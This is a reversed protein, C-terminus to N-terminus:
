PQIGYIAQLRQFETRAAAAKEPEGGSQYLRFLQYHVTADASALGAAAELTRVADRPRELEKYIRAALKAAAVDRQDLRMAKEAHPLAGAADGAALRLRALGLQSHALQPTAAFAAAAEEPRGLRELCEGLYSRTRAHGPNRELALHFWRVAEQANGVDADYHRGLYYYPGFDTADRRIAQTMQDRFLLHQRALYYAVGLAKPEDIPRLIRIAATADNRLIALIGRWTDRASVRAIMREARALDGGLVAQRIAANDETPAPLLPTLDQSQGAM